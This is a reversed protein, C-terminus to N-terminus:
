RAVTYGPRGIVVPSDDDIHCVLLQDGSEYTRDAPVNPVDQGNGLSVTQTGNTTGSSQGIMLTAKRKM